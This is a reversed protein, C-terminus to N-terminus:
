LLLSDLNSKKWTSPEHLDSHGPKGGSGDNNAIHNTIQNNDGLTRGESRRNPITGVPTQIRDAASFINHLIDVQNLNPLYELRIPTGLTILKDIRLGLHMALLCVNGGHSHAIVRLYDTPNLQTWAYLEKAAKVRAGHSNKGSWYFPNSGAYVDNVINNVHNRFSGGNQWWTSTKGFTGHVIITISKTKISPSPLTSKPIQTSLQRVGQSLYKSRRVSLIQTETQKTLLFRAVNKAAVPHNELFLLNTSQDIYSLFYCGMTSLDPKDSRLLRDLLEADFSKLPINQQMSKLFQSADSLDKMEDSSLKM